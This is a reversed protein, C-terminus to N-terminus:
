MVIVSETQVTGNETARVLPMEISKKEQLYYSAETGQTGQDWLIRILPRM